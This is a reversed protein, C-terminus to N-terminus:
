KDVLEPVSWGREQKVEINKLVQPTRSKSRELQEETTMRM